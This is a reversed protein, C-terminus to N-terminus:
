LCSRSTNTVNYIFFNPLACHINCLIIYTPYLRYLITNLCYITYNFYITYIMYSIHLIHYLTFMHMRVHGFKKLSKIRKHQTKQHGTCAERPYTPLRHSKSGIDKFVLDRIIIKTYLPMCHCTLARRSAKNPKMGDMRGM